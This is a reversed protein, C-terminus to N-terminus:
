PNLDGEDIVTVESLDGSDDTGLLGDAGAGDVPDGIAPGPFGTGFKTILGSRIEMGTETVNWSIGVTRLAVVGETIPYVDIGESESAGITRISKYTKNTIGGPFNGLIVTDSDPPPTGYGAGGYALPTGGLSWGLYRDAYCDVSGHWQLISDRSVDWAQLPDADPSEWCVWETRLGDGYDRWRIATRQPGANFGPAAGAITRRARRRLQVARDYWAQGVHVTRANVDALNTALNTFPDTLVLLPDHLVVELINAGRGGGGVGEPGVVGAQIASYTETFFNGYNGQITEDRRAPDKYRYLVTVHDPLWAHNPVLVDEDEVRSSDWGADANAAGKDTAGWRAISFKDAQPEYVLTCGLHQLAMELADLLYSDTLDLQLPVDDGGQTGAPLGPYPGLGFRKGGDAPVPTIPGPVLDVGNNGSWFYNGWNWLFEIMDAWTGHRNGATVLDGGSSVEGDEALGDRSFYCNWRKRTMLYRMGYRRDALEVWYTQDPSGRSGPIVCRAQLIRLRNLTINQPGEFVLNGEREIDISTLDGRRMLIWGRGAQNGTPCTFSNALGAFPAPLGAAICAQAAAAPDLLPKGAFSGFTQYASM